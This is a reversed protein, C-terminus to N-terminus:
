LPKGNDFFRKTTWNWPINSGLGICRWLARHVIDTAATSNFEPIFMRILIDCYYGDKLYLEAIQLDQETIEESSKHLKRM